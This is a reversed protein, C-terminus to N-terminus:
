LIKDKHKDGDDDDDDDIMTIRNKNGLFHRSFWPFTGASSASVIPSQTCRHVTM